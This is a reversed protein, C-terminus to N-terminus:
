NDAPDSRLYLEDRLVRLIVNELILYDEKSTKNKCITQFNHFTTGWLIESLNSKSIKFNLLKSQPMSNKNM